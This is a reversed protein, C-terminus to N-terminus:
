IYYEASDIIGARLAYKTAEHVNNVGIKRFINKRHTMITHVSSIREAAIEKTAKGLAISKLISLETVTLNKKEQNEKETTQVLLQQAIRSSLTRKGYLLGYLADQLESATADKMLFSIRPCAYYIQKIFDNSLEDSALLWQVNSFREHLIILEDASKIDFLTYDLCVCADAHDTLVSLLDERNAADVIMMKVPLQTVYYCIGARTIAQNDALILTKM